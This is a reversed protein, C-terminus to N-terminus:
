CKVKKKLSRCVAELGAMFKVHIGYNSMLADAAEADIDSQQESM